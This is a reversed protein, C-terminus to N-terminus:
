KLKFGNVDMVSETIFNLFGVPMTKLDEITCAMGSKNLSAHVLSLIADASKDDGIATILDLEAGTLPSLPIVTGEYTYEKSKGIFARLREDM